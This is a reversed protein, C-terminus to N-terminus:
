PYFAFLFLPFNSLVSFGAYCIITQKLNYNQIVPKPYEPERHLLHECCFGYRENLYQREYKNIRDALTHKTAEYYKSIRRDM